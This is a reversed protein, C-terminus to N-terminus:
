ARFPLFVPLTANFRAILLLSLSLWVREGVVCRLSEDVFLDTFVSQILFRAPASLVRLLLTLARRQRCQADPQLHRVLALTNAAPCFVFFLRSSVPAAGCSRV